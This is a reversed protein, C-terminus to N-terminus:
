SLFGSELPRERWRFSHEVASNVVERSVWIVVSSTASGSITLNHEYLKDGPIRQLLTGVAAANITSVLQCAPVTSSGMRSDAGIPSGAGAGAGGYQRRITYAVPAVNTDPSIMELTVVVGSQAPVLLGVQTINAALAAGNAVGGFSLEGRGIRQEFRDDELVMTPVIEDALQPNYAGAVGFAWRLAMQWRNVDITRGM